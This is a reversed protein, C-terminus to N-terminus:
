AVFGGAGQVDFGADDDQFREFGVAEISGMDLNRNAYIRRAPDSPPRAELIASLDLPATQIPEDPQSM